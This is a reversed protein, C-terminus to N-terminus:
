KFYMYKRLGLSHVNTSLQLREIYIVPLQRTYYYM